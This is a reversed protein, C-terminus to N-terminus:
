VDAGNQIVPGYHFGVGLGLGAAADRLEFAKVQMAVAVRAATDASEALLMLRSGARKVVRARSATAAEELQGFFHGVTDQAATDDARGYLEAAGILEAFIVATERGGQEM